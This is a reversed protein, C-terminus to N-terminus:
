VASLPLQPLNRSHCSGISVHCPERSANAALTFTPFPREHVVGKALEGLDLV